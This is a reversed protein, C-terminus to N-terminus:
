LLRYQLQRARGPTTWAGARSPSKPAQHSKVMEAARGIKVV